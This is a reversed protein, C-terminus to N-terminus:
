VGAVRSLSEVHADLAAALPLVHERYRLVRRYHGAQVQREGYAEYFPRESVGLYSSAVAAVPRLWEVRFDNACAGKFEQGTQRALDPHEDFAVSGAGGLAAEVEARLEPYNHAASLKRAFAAEDLDLRISDARLHEPCHGPPGVLTFDYNGIRAGTTREVLRVAANVLLRCIDHSPNYGEEADGAVLEVRERVLTAALEEVLRVFPSHEHELVAAYLEGDRFPGYVPAPRAGAAALIRDTSDLRSRGTRGSGDTLVCVSPRAAELWGHVRLEHGPHAIVLVARPQKGQPESQAHSHSSM